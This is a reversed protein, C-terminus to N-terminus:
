RRGRLVRKIRGIQFFLRGLERRSEERWYIHRLFREFDFGRQEGMGEVMGRGVVGGPGGWVGSCGDSSQGVGGRKHM